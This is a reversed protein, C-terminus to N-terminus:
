NHFELKNQTFFINLIQNRKIFVKTGSSRVHEQAIIIRKFQLM